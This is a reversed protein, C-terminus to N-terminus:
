SQRHSMAGDVSVGNHTAAERITPAADMVAPRHREILDDNVIVISRETAAAYTRWASAADRVGTGQDNNSPRNLPVHAKQRSTADVIAICAHNGDSAARNTVVSGAKRTVIAPRAASNNIISCHRNLVAGDASVCRGSAIKFTVTATDVTVVIGDGVTGDGSIASQAPAPNSSTTVYSVGGEAIVRSAYGAVSEVQGAREVKPVRDQFCAGRADVDNIIAAAKDSMAVVNTAIIAATKQVAGAVLDIGIRQQAGQLVVTSWREGM